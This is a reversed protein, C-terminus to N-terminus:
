MLRPLEGHLQRGVKRRAECTEGKFNRRLKEVVRFLRGLPEVRDVKGGIVVVRFVTLSRRRSSAASSRVSEGVEFIRGHKEETRTPDLTQILVMNPMEQLM